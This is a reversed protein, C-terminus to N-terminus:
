QFDEFEDYLSDGSRSSYSRSSRSSYSDDDDGGAMSGWQQGGLGDGSARALRRKLEANEDALQRERDGEGEEDGLAARRFEDWSVRDADLAAVARAVDDRFETADNEGGRVDESFGLAGAFGEDDRLAQVVEATAVTGERETDVRQFIAWLYDELAGQPQTPSQATEPPSGAIPSLPPVLPHPPSEARPQTVPELIEEGGSSDTVEPTPAKAPADDAALELYTRPVYGAEAAKAAFIWGQAEDAHEEVLVLLTDGEALDMEPPEEMAFARRARARALAGGDPADAGEADRRAEWYFEPTPAAPAAQAREDDAAVLFHRPVYGAERTSKAAFVWDDSSARKATNILVRDGADLSMEAASEAAFASRAVVVDLGRGPDTPSAPAADPEIERRALWYFEPTPDRPAAAAPDTAAAPEATPEETPEAEPEPTPEQTPEAAPEATPEETPEVAPRDRICM